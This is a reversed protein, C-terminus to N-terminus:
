PRPSALPSGPQRQAKLGEGPKRPGLEDIDWTQLGDRDFAFEVIQGGLEELKQAVIHKRDFECVFLMYGGGGAGTVKGGLAGHTRGVSYMEDITPNTIAGAMKKKAQWGSHLLAGFDRLDNRLLANKMDVAISKLEDMAAIVEEYSQVYGEIQSRIIGDSVRTRGTYCLLSLYQLENLTEPSVRLPNVVVGASSFEIFNVGGFVAAYQDQKGGAIGLDKREIEYALEALQYDTMPHNKWHRFLGMLAIVVASSSGLGSGPPADTHLFFEMGQREEHSNMRKLVAKVLDLSGDFQLPDDLRYKAVVDYDLSRVSISDDDSLRLSAYAYKDITVSLVAGGREDMYPSIDTGGGAFSLRLPARSRIVM